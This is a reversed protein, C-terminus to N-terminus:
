HHVGRWPRRGEGFKKKGVRKEGSSKGKRELVKSMQGRRDRIDITREKQCL